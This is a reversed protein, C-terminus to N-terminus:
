TAPKDSFTVQDAAIHGWTGTNQDVVQLRATRGVLDKVDWTRWTLHESGEGTATRVVEGDVVLNVSTQDDTEGVTADPRSSFLVQDVMLHGWSGTAHDVVELHAKRGVLEHVDWSVPAMTASDNGTATRVVADDVVLNVATAGSAGYPHKGGAVLLDLYDRTITFDPSRVAGMAADSGAYTDLVRSGVQGPLSEATPGSGALDGTATWGDGWTTGEFGAYLQSPMPHDGGGVLLNIDDHAIVFPASTLTGTASDGGAASTALRAGTYGTVPQQWSLTGTTPGTGFATGTTTWTGYGSSEFDAYPGDPDAATQIDDFEKITTNSFMTSGGSSYLQIGTDNPDFMVQNSLVTRGDDVYVEVSSRDVLIKLHVSTRGTGIAAQSQKLSGFAHATFDSATRDVYLNGQYYGINTKHDLDSSVGVAVGVNDASTWSLDTDLEYAAGHYALPTQGSVTRDPLTWTRSTIGDLGASPQSLLSYVGSGESKLTLDRVVSMQGNYDDTVDTKIPHPAYNWNNMWAIAHRETDPHTADPWSVAAYWDWGHDLWQPDTQDPTFASGNWAGSWYAYTDPQGSYDGQMSGGLMWHWTGDDAKMRFLDPCEFGGINPTTYSFASRYTWHKLDPSTYFVVKQQKGIVAVWEAHDDDWVIKPDRFWNTGEDNTIVPPGYPTFSSGGDTSYWLYQEQRYADGDTPQTALAVVAGAGFGATDATDVVSSGTWVPFHSSLPIATGADDFVANDTTTVHHWGGPGNDVDSALYYLNARGDVYVPRQPDSLWGSDPSLHYVARQSEDPATAQTDLRAGGLDQPQVSVGITVVAAVLAATMATRPRVVRLQKWQV